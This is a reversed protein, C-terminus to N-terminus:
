SRQSARSQREAALRALTTTYGTLQLPYGAAPVPDSINHAILTRIAHVVHFNALLGNGSMLVDVLSPRDPGEESQSGGLTRLYRRYRAEEIMSRGGGNGGENDLNDDRENILPRMEINNTEDAGGLPDDNLIGREEADLDQQSTALGTDLDLAATATAAAMASAANSNRAGSTGKPLGGAAVSKLTVEIKKIRDKELWVACMVCQLVMVVGDLLVLSLKSAPAKQGIFDILIGGHLYGRMTESAEPLAFLVHLLMCLINSCFITYMQPRPAPMIKLFEEPKPTLYLYQVLSRM